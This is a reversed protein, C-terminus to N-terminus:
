YGIYTRLLNPTNGNETMAYLFPVTTPGDTYEAIFPTQGTFTSTALLSVSNWPTLQHTAFDFVYWQAVTISSATNRIYWRGRSDVCKWGGAPAITLPGHPVANVWTNLAIDYYDLVTSSTGRFSYIRRGNRINNEDTWDTAPCGTVLANLLGASAAGGRAVSPSLTTWSNGSISYRYTAVAANGMLYLSDDDGEISYVSTADPTVTWTPVTLTTGTNSTIRRVQGVGTGATIRVQYANAWQNTAWAKASNVLTTTTAGTATGTAYSTVVGLDVISPTAMLVGDTGFSAPLGTISLSSYTQTAFDLVRFSTGGLTGGGFMYLRGTLLTYNSSSTITASFAPTVTIVSNAGLTNSQITRWDGAGPGSNIRIQYGRLDIPITLNTTLTTTTGATATGTPGIASAEACAGTVFTGLGPSNMAGWADQSPDYIDLNGTGRLWYVFQTHLRNKVCVSGAVTNTIPPSCLAWQKRHLLPKFNNATPM